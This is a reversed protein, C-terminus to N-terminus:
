VLMQVCKPCLKTKIYMKLIRVAGHKANGCNQSYESITMSMSRMGKKRM